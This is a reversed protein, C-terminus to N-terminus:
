NINLPTSGTVGKFKANINTQGHSASSAVGSKSMVAVTPSSSSWTCVSTIDETSGDSFMGSAAFQQSGGLAITSNAPTVSISTITAGSVTLTGTASGQGNISGTITVTGPAVGTAVGQRNIYADAYNSTQWRASATLDVQTVGDSFTGMLSFQQQTGAAITPASPQIAMSQITMSTITVGTNGTIGNLRAYVTVPHTTAKKTRLVGSGNVMAYKASNTHWSVGSLVLTSNDSFTGIATLQIKSHPPVIPNSPTIAISVLTATTVNLTASGSITGSTATIQVTGASVGTALGGASITASAGNSSTWLVQSTLDQTSSDSFVGTATYQVNGNIGVVTSIPTVVLNTLVAQTVTLNATASMSDYM